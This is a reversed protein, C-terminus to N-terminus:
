RATIPVTYASYVVWWLATVGLQWACLVRARRPTPIEKGHYLEHGPWQGTRNMRWVWACSAVAFAGAPVHMALPHLQWLWWCLGIAGGSVFCQTLMEPVLRRFEWAALERAADPAAGSREGHNADDTM